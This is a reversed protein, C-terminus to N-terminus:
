HQELTWDEELLTTVARAARRPRSREPRFTGIPRLQEGIVTMPLLQYATEEAIPM